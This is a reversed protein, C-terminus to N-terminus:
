LINVKIKIAELKESFPMTLCYHILMPYKNFIFIIMTGWIQERDHSLFVLPRVSQCKLLQYKLTKNTKM